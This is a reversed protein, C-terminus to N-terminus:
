TPPTPTSAITLSVTSTYTGAQANGPLHIWWGVPTTGGILVSGLGSTAAATYLTSIPPTAAATTVAVPYTPEAGSPPTCDGSTTCAADPTAGITATSLSGNVSLTGTDDLIVPTGGGTTFTTAAVTVNWGSGSGTADDVTLLQDGSTGDVAYQAAGSLTPAWTLTTPTTMTLAGAGLTATGAASCAAVGATCTSAGATGAGAGALGAVGGLALVFGAALGAVRRRSKPIHFRM